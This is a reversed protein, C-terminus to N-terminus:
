LRDTLDDQEKNEADKNTQNLVTDLTERLEQSLELGHHNAVQHMLMDVKGQPTALESQDDMTNEMYVDYVGGHCVQRERECRPLRLQDTPPASPKIFLITSVIPPVTQSDRM